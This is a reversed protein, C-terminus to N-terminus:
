NRDVESNRAAIDPTHKKFFSADHIKALTKIEEALQRLSKNKDALTFDPINFGYHTEFLSVALLFRIEDLAGIPAEIDIDGLNPDKFQLFTILSHLIHNDHPQGTPPDKVTNLM